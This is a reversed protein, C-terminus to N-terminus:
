GRGTEMKKERQKWSYILIIKSAAIIKNLFFCTCNIANKLLYFSLKEVVRAVNFLNESLLQIAKEEPTATKM